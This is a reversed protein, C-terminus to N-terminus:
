ASSPEDRCSETPGSDVVASIVAAARPRRRRCRSRGPTARPPARAARRRSRRAPSAAGTQARQGVQQRARDQDAVQGPDRRDHDGGLEALQEADGLVGVPEDGLQPLHQAPEVLHVAGRRGEAQGRQGRHQEGGGSAGRAGTASSPMSPAVAAAASSSRASWPTRRTPSIGAPTGTGPERVQAGGVQSRHQRRREADGEDAVGVVDEGAAGERRPVALGDVRLALQEGEAGGVEAGAQQLSERDAAAAAAGGDAVRDAAPGLEGAQDRDGARQEGSSVRRGSRAANGRAARAATTTYAAVRSTSTGSSTRKARNRRLSSHEGEGGGGAHQHEADQQPDHDGDREGHEVQQAPHGPGCSATSPRTGPRAPCARRPRSGTRRPSGRAAPRGSRSAVTRRWRRSSGCGRARPPRRPAPRRHAPEQEVDLGVDLDVDGAGVRQLGQAGLELLPADDERQGPELLVQAVLECRGAQEVLIPSSWM